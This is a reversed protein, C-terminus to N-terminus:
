QSRERKIPDRKIIRCSTEASTIRTSIAKDSECCDLQTLYSGPANTVANGSEFSVNRGGTIIAPSSTNITTLLAKRMKYMDAGELYRGNVRSSLYILALVATFLSLLILANKQIEFM